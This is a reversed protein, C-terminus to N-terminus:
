RQGKGPVSVAPEVIAKIVPHVADPNSELLPGVITHREAVWPGGYLLKAAQPYPGPNPTRICVRM